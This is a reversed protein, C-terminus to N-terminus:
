FTWNMTLGWWDPDDFQDMNAAQKGLHGKIVLQDNVPYSAWLQGQIHSLGSDDLFYRDNYVALVKWGLSFDGIEFSDTIFPKYLWSGEAHEGWIKAAYLNLALTETVNYSLTLGAERATHFEQEGNLLFAGTYLKLSYRYVDEAIEDKSWLTWSGELDVEFPEDEGTETIYIVDFWSSVLMLQLTPGDNLTYGPDIVKQNWYNLELNQVQAQSLNAIALMAMVILM